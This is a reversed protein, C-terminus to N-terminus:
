RWTRNCCMSSVVQLKIYTTVHVEIIKYIVTQDIQPKIAWPVIKVQLGSHNKSRIVGAHFWLIHHFGLWHLRGEQAWLHMIPKSEFRCTKPQTHFRKCKCDVWTNVLDVRWVSAAAISYCCLEFRSHNPLVARLGARFCESVITTVHQSWFSHGTVASRELDQKWRSRKTAALNPLPYLKYRILPDIEVNDIYIHDQCIKALKTGTIEPHFCILVQFIKSTSSM